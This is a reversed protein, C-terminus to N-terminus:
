NISRKIIAGFDKSLPDVPELSKAFVEADQESHDEGELLVVTQNQMIAIYDVVEGPLADSNTPTSGHRYLAYYDTRSILKCTFIVDGPENRNVGFQSGCQEAPPTGLFKYEQFDKTDGFFRLAKQGLHNKIQGDIHDDDIYGNFGSPLYLKIGAAAVKRQNAGIDGGLDVRDNVFIVLLVVLLGAIISLVPRKLGLWRWVRKIIIIFVVLAPPLWILMYMLSGIGVDGERSDAFQGPWILLLFTLGAVLLCALLWKAVVKFMDM